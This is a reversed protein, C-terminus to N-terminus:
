PDGCRQALLPRVGHSPATTDGSVREHRLSSNALLNSRKRDILETLCSYWRQGITDLGYLKARERTRESVRNYLEADDALRKLLEALGHDDGPEFVFGDDGHEVNEPLGGSRAVIAPVGFCSGEISVRGFPERWISPVVVVDIQPYFEEARVWGCFATNSSPFQAKLENTYEDDGSGAILFQVDPRDSLRKAAAALTEIGKNRTHTGIFGVRLGNLKVHRSPLRNDLPGPIVYAEANPFYGADQHMRRVFHTETVLVGVCKSLYKKGVSCLKCSLCHSCNSGARFLSSRWCLLFYGQALHVCPIGLSKAAAWSAVNINQTDTTILVDPQYSQLEKKIRRFAIPNFNELVHWAIKKLVPKDQKLWDRYVNLPALTIVEIDGRQEQAEADGVVLVRVQTPQTALSQAILASDVPGGGRGYPPFAACAMLIRMRGNGGGNGSPAEDMLSRAAV